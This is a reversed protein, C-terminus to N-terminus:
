MSSSASPWVIKSNKLGTQQMWKRTKIYLNYMFQLSCLMKSSFFILYNMSSNKRLLAMFEMYNKGTFKRPLLVVTVVSQPVCQFHIAHLFIYTFRKRSFMFYPFSKISISIISIWCSWTFKYILVKAPLKFIARYRTQLFFTESRKSCIRKPLFGSFLYLGGGGSFFIGVRM